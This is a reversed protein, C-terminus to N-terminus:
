VDEPTHEGDEDGREDEPQLAARAVAYSFGARGLRALDKMRNAARDEPPRWRGLRRKRVYAACAVLEPSGETSAALGAAIVEASLGKGGLRAQVQRPSVGRAIARAARVEAFQADNIFGARQATDLAAELAAELPERDVAFEAVSRDIKRRFLRQVHARPASYRQVHNLVRARVSDPTLPRAKRAM